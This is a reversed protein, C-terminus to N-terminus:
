KRNERWILLEFNTVLKKNHEVHGWYLNLLYIDLSAFKRVRGVAGYSHAITINFDIRIETYSLQSEKYPLPFNAKKSRTVCRLKAWFKSSDSYWPTFGDWSTALICHTNLIFLLCCVASMAEFTGMQVKGYLFM